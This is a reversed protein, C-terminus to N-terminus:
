YYTGKLQRRLVEYNPIIKGVLNWFADGHNFESLHCLEHVILYDQLEPSLDVIKYHFNLNQRQSCSGWRSSMNKIAIRKYSFNYQRNWHTLREVVLARATEKKALYDRRTGRLKAEPKKIGKMRASERSIWTAHERLFKLLARETAWKPHSVIVEGGPYITVRLRKTRKTTRLTYPFPIPTEEKTTLFGLIM